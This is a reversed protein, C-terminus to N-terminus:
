VEETPPALRGKLKGLSEVHRRMMEVTDEYHAVLARTDTQEDLLRAVLTRIFPTAWTLNVATRFEDEQRGSLRLHRVWVDIRSRPVKRRGSLIKSMDGSNSGVLAIFSQKDINIEALRRRVLDGVSRMWPSRLLRM